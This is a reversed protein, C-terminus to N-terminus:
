ADVLMNSAPRKSFGIGLGVCIMLARHADADNLIWLEAQAPQSSNEPLLGSRVECAIGANSCEKGAFEVETHDSSFFLLKM